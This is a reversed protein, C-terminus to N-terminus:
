QLDRTQILTIPYDGMSSSGVLGFLVFGATSPKMTIEFVYEKNPQAEIEARGGRTTVIIKGSDHLAKYPQDPDVAAVRKGNIAVEASNGRLPESTIVIGSKGTLPTDAAFSAAPIAFMFVIAALKM